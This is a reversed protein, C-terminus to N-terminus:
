LQGLWEIHNRGLKIRGTKELQKLLRSIVERSSHLDAAVEQHTIGLSTSGHHKMRQHLYQELREDMKLFAISDITNLMEDFRSSYTHIVFMRWSQYQRMWIDMMEVPLSILETDEEAVARVKSPQDGMCCTLTMACTDGPQLTYILLENGDHDERLIKLAGSVILPLMRYYSGIEMVIQGQPFQMMRGKHLIDAILAPESLHPFHHQLLSQM